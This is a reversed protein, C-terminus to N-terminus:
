KNASINDGNSKPFNLNGYKGEKKSKEKWLKVDDLSSDQYMWYYKDEPVVFRYFKELTVRNEVM